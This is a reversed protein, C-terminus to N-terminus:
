RGSPGGFEGSSGGVSPGGFEGGGAGGGTNPKLEKALAKKRAKLKVWEPSGKKGKAELEGIRKNVADREQYLKSKSSKEGGVTQGLRFGAGFQLATNGTSQAGTTMSKNTARIQPLVNLLHAVYADWGDFKKKGQKDYVPETLGAKIAWAPAPVKGADLSAGPNYRDQRKIEQQTFFNKNAYLEVPLKLVPNLAGAFTQPAKGPLFPNLGTAIPLSPDLPIVGNKTKVPITMGTQEYDPLQDFYDMYSEYGASRAALNLTKAFNAFKGPREMLTRLQIRANGAMFTWFPMMWRRISKEAETRGQYDIYSRKAYKAAGAPSAGKGRAHAHGMMRHFNEIGRLFREISESTATKPLGGQAVVEAGTYGTDISGYHEVEDLFNRMTDKYKGFRLEQDLLKKVQQEPSTGEAFQKAGMQARELKAKGRTARAANRSGAIMPVDAKYTFELNGYIDRMYKAPTRLLTKKLMGTTKDVARGAASGAAKPASVLEKAKEYIQDELVVLTSPDRPRKSSAISAEIGRVKGPEEWGAVRVLNGPNQPDFKYIAEGEDLNIPKGKQVKRSHQKIGQWMDSLAANSEARRTVTRVIPGAATEFDTPLGREELNELKKRITRQKGKTPKSQRSPFGTTLREAEEKQLSSKRAHLVYSLADEDNEAAIARAAKGRRGGMQATRLVLDRSSENPLRKPLATDLESVQQVNIEAQAVRNKQRTLQAKPVQTSSREMVALKAKERQLKKKATTVLRQQGKVDKRGARSLRKKQQRTMAGPVFEPVDVGAKRQVTRAEDMIQQLRKLAPGGEGNRLQAATFNEKRKIDDPTIKAKKVAMEYRNAKSEGHAIRSRASGTERQLTEWVDRKMGKPRATPSLTETVGAVPKSTRVRETAESLTRTNEGSLKKIKARGLKATTKGTTSVQAQKSTLPISARMGVQVGRGETGGKALYAKVAKNKADSIFKDRAKGKLGQKAALKSANRGAQKAVSSTVTGAGLTLYTTPDLAVDGAFGAIDRVTKNKVGLEKLVSAFGGRDKGQLGKGVAKPIDEGKIAAKVGSSVGYSPRATLDIVAAANKTLRKAAEEAKRDIEAGAGASLAGGRSPVGKGLDSLAKGGIVTGLDEIAGLVQKGAKGIDGSVEKLENRNKFQRVYEQLFRRMEARQQNAIHQPNKGTKGGPLVVRKGTAVARLQREKTAQSPGKPLYKQVGPQAPYKKAAERKKKRAIRRQIEKYEKDSVKFPGVLTKAM